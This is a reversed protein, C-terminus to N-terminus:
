SMSMSVSVFMPMSMHLTGNRLPAYFFPTRECRNRKRLFHAIRPSPFYRFYHCLFPQKAGLDYLNFIQLQIPENDM